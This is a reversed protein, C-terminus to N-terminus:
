GRAARITATSSGVSWSAPPTSAPSRRATPTSCAPTGTSTSDASPSRSGAPSRSATSRRPISRRRGTRSRRSSAPGGPRGQGRPRLARRAIAANFDAVTRRLRRRRDGLREALEDLTDAQAGTLAADYEETRLLPRTKADFLQFAVGGPQALIERGYKAYTYNRFDAGEDVFRRGTANVIIGLPYSQAHLQNTLERDGGGADAGADWAVSHCSSWDGFRAAGADVALTWCRATNLPTGRVLARSWGPGLYRERREPDAEFGGAALVVADAAVTSGDTSDRVGGSSWARDGRDGYRM